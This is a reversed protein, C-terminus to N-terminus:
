CNVCIILRAYGIGDTGARRGRPLPRHGGALGRLRRHFPGEQRGRRVEVQRPHGVGGQDGVAPNLIPICHHMLRDVRQPTPETTINQLANKIHEM